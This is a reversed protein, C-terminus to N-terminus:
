RSLINSAWSLSARCTPCKAGPRYPKVQVRVRQECEACTVIIRISADYKSQKLTTRREVPASRVPQSAPRPPASSPTPKARSERRQPPPDRRPKAAETANLLASKAEEPSCRFVEKCEQSKGDKDWYLGSVASRGLAVLTAREIAGANEAEVSIVERWDDAGAYRQAKLSLARAAVSQAFGIKCLRLQASHAVYVFAKESYRRSYARGSPNCIACHGSLWRLRHGGSACPTGLMARKGEAKARRKAITTASRRGDFVDAETLEMRALFKREEPSLASM